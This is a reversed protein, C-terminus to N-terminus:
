NSVKNITIMDHKKFIIKPKVTLFLFYDHGVLQMDAFFDTKRKSDQALLTPLPNPLKDLHTFSMLLGFAQEFTM